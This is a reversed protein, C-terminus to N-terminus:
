PRARAAELTDGRLEERRVAEEQRLEARSEVARSDLAALQDRLEDQRSDDAQRGENGLREDEQGHRRAEFFSAYASAPAPAPAPPAPAPAPPM